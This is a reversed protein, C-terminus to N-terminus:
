GLILLGEFGGWFDKTVGFLDQCRWFARLGGLFGGNAGGLGPRRGAHGVRFAEGAPGARAGLLMPKALFLGQDGWFETMPGALASFGQNRWVRAKLGALARNRGQSRRIRGNAGSSAAPLGLLGRVLWVRANLGALTLLGRGWGPRLWAGGIPGSAGFLRFRGKHGRFGGPTARSGSFPGGLGPAALNPAFIAVSGHEQGWWFASLAVTIPCDELPSKLRSAVAKWAERPGHVGPTFIKAGGIASELGALARGPAGSFDTRPDCRHRAFGTHCQDLWAGDFAGGFRHIQGALFLALMLRFVCGPKRWFLPSVKLEVM